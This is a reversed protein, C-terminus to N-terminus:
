CKKLLKKKLIISLMCTKRTTTAQTTIFKLNIDLDTFTCVMQSNGSHVNIRELLPALAKNLVEKQLFWLNLLFIFM